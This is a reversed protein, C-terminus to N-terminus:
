IHDEQLVAPFSQEWNMFISYYELNKTSFDSDSIYIYLMEIAKEKVVQQLILLLDPGINPSQDNTMMNLKLIIGVKILSNNMWVSKIGVNISSVIASTPENNSDESFSDPFKKTKQNFSSLYRKSSQILGKSMANNHISIDLKVAAENDM